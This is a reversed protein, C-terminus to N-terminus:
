DTYAIYKFTGNGFREFRGGWSGRVLKEVEERTVSPPYVGEKIMTSNSDSRPIWDIQTTDLDAFTKIKLPMSAQSKRQKEWYELQEDRGSWDCIPCYEASDVCNSCPASSHCSCSGEKEFEDIIGTCGDRNCVEGKLYGLEINQM